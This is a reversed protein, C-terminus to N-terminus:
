KAKAQSMPKGHLIAQQEVLGSSDPDMRWGEFAVLGLTIELAQADTRAALEQAKVIEVVEWRAAYAAKSEEM